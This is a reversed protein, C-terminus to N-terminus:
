LKVEQRTGYIELWQMRDVTITRYGNADDDWVRITGEAAPRGTGKIEGVAQHRFRMVRQTGDKKTFECWCQGASNRIAAGAETPTM